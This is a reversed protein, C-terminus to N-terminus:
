LVQIGYKARIHSQLLYSLVIVSYTIEGYGAFKPIGPVSPLDLLTLSDAVVVFVLVVSTGVWGWRMQLWLGVSFVMSLVGFVATYVSYIHVSLSANSFFGLDEFRPAALMWIGFVVHVLGILVQTAVLVAVGLYRGGFTVPPLKASM